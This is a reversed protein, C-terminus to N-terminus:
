QVPRRVVVGTGCHRCTSAEMATWGPFTNLEGCHPCTESCMGEAMAMRLLTPEAEAAPVTMIVAGCENYMLDISDTGPNRKLDVYEGNRTPMIIGCCEPDGQDAHAALIPYEREEV